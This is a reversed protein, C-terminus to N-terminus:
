LARGGVNLSPHGSDIAFVSEGYTCSKDEEEKGEDCHRGRIMTRAGTELYFAM